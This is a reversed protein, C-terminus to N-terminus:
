GPRVGTRGFLFYGSFFVENFADICETYLIAYCHLPTILREKSVITFPKRKGKQLEHLCPHIELNLFRDIPIRTNKQIVEAITKWEDAKSFM